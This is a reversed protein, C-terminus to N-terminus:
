KNFPDGPPVSLTVTLSYPSQQTKIKVTIIGKKQSVAVEDYATIIKKKAQDLEDKVALLPQDRLLKWVFMFCSVLRYSNKEKKLHGEVMDRTFIIM